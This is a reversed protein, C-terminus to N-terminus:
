YVLGNENEKKETVQILLGRTTNGLIISVGNKFQIPTCYPCWYEKREAHVNIGSIFPPTAILGCTICEYNM